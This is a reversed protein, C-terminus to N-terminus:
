AGAIGTAMMSMYYNSCHVLIMLIIEKNALGEFADDTTIAYEYNMKSWKFNPKMVLLESGEQNNLVFSDKFFGRHKFIYGLETYDFFTQVVIEGKWNMNFKLLM